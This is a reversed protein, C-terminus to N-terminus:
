SGSSRWRGTASEAFLVTRSTSTTRSWTTSPLGIRPFFVKGPNSITVAFGDLEITESTRGPM